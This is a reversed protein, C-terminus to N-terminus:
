RRPPGCFRREAEHPDLPIHLTTNAPAHVLNTLFRGPTMPQHIDRLLRGLDGCRLARRAAPLGPDSADSIVGARALLWPRPLDHAHGARRTSVAPLRAAVPDALGFRDVFPVDAGAVVSTVGIADNRATIGSGVPRRFTEASAGLDDRRDVFLDRGRYSAIVDGAIRLFLPQEGLRVPDDHGIFGVVLARQDEVPPDSPVARWWGACVVAWVTVAGAAAVRVVDPIRWRAPSVSTVPLVALPAILAALPTLLFRGHMYDGGIVVVYFLHALAPVVFALAVTRQGPRRLPRLAAVVAVVIVAPVVLHYPTAFNALYNWGRSWLQSGADKALATNPVLSAFYGMRFVEYGAPVALGAGVLSATSPVSRSARRRPRVVTLWLAVASGVAYLGLEPRVLPGLGILAFRWPLEVSRRRATAAAARAVVAFSLGIWAQALGNELGSSSFDWLPPLAVLAVIGFPIWLRPVEGDRPTQLAVAGAMLAVTGVVSLSIGLVVALWEYPVLGVTLVRSVVLLALWLPSTFAEVREGINFVPGNGALVQGAIRINIFGDEHVWRRRWALVLHVGAVLVLLGYTSARSGTGDASGDAAAPTSAVGDIEPAVPSSM